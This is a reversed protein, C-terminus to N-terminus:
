QIRPHSAICDPLLKHFNCFFANGGNEPGLLLGLLCRSIFLSGYQYMRINRETFLLHFQATNSLILNNARTQKNSMSKLRLSPRQVNRQFTSLNRGYYWSDCRLIYYERYDGDDTETAARDLAHITKAREFVPITPEFWVLPMSIQRRRNQTQTSRHLYRGQSPSIRRGLFGVSQRLILFSFHFLANWTHGTSRTPAVPFFFLTAM